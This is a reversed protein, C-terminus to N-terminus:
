DNNTEGKMAAREEERAAKVAAKLEGETYLKPFSYNSANHRYKSEEYKGHENLRLANPIEGVWDGTNLYPVLAAPRDYGCVDLLLWLLNSRQYENLTITWAIPNGNQDRQIFRPDCCSQNKGCETMHFFPKDVYQTPTDCRTGLETATNLLKVLHEAKERQQEPSGYSCCRDCGRSMFINVCTCDPHCPTTHLCPCAKHETM